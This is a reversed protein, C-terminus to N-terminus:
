SDSSTKLRKSRGGLQQQQQPRAADHDPFKIKWPRKNRELYEAYRQAYRQTLMMAKFAAPDSAFARSLLADVDVCVFGQHQPWKGHQLRARFTVPQKDREPLL